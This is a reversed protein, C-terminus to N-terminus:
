RDSTRQSSVDSKKQKLYEEYSIKMTFPDYGDDVLIWDDAKNEIKANKLAEQKRKVIKKIENNMGRKYSDLKDKSLELYVKKVGSYRLLHETVPSGCKKCKKNKFLDILEADQMEDILDDADKKGYLRKKQKLFEGTMVTTRKQHLANYLELIIEKSDSWNIEIRGTDKNKIFKIKDTDKTEYKSIEKIAGDVNLSAFNNKKATKSEIDTTIVTADCEEKIEIIKDLGDNKVLTIHVVPDYDLNMYKRWKKILKKHTWQNSKQNWYDRRVLLLLHVHPHYEIRERQKKYGATVELHRITGLCLPKVNVIKGKDKRKSSNFLKDEKLFKKIANNIKDIENKLEGTIVNKQTLTVFILYCNRYNNDKQMSELIKFLMETEKHSKIHSCIPCYRDKCFSGRFHKHTPDSICQQMYRLSNCNKILDAKTNKNLQRFISAIDMAFRKQILFIQEETLIEYIEIHESLKEDDQSYYKIFDSEINM